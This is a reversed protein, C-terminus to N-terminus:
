KIKVWPKQLASYQKLKKRNHQKLKVKVKLSIIDYTLFIKVNKGQVFEQFKFYFYKYKKVIRKM